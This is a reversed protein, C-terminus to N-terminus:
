QQQSASVPRIADNEAAFADIGDIMAVVTSRQKLEEFAEKRAAEARQRTIVQEIDAQVESFAQTKPEERETVHFVEFRNGRTIVRTTTGQPMEFLESELETDTLTGRQIWGMDGGREANMSDSHARAVVGFDNNKRLQLVVQTMVKEAGKRGGHEDFSVTIEAVRVRTGTTYDSIHDRYYRLMEQRDISGPSEALTQLFGNVLQVRTFAERLQDLTMGEGALADSLEEESKMGRDEMISAVVKQFEPELSERIADQRDAPIKQRLADLVIEQEVYTPLRKQLQARLIMQRQSDSLRGDAEISYRLSGLLDDVFIPNGNVECVVTTGKLPQGDTTTAGVQRIVGNEATAVLTSAMGEGALNTLSRRPPAAAFVPNDEQISKGNCGMCVCLALMLVHPLRVTQLNLARARPATSTCCRPV